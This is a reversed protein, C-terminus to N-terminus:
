KGFVYIISLQQQHNLEQWDIVHLSWNFHGKIKEKKLFYWILDTRFYDNARYFNDGFAFRHSEGSHLTSKVGVSKWRGLVEAFFSNAALYGDTEGREQYESNLIGAKIYGQFAKNEKTRVGARLSFGMYDEIHQGDIRVGPYGVHTIVFYNELFLQGTYMEGSFGATFIERNVDTQRQMWDVFGNQWGWKWNYKGYLGELNPRYYLLTDTLMALPFDIKDRRPFAGFLFNINHNSYQYYLTPKPKQADAESGFEYLYSFGLRIKHNGTSVGGEFAARTGLITQPFGYDNFFERNDGIGEFLVNYEFNQSFVSFTIVTFLLVFLKKM